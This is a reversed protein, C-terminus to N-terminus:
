YYPSEDIKQCNIGIFLMITHSFFFIIYSFLFFFIFFDEADNKGLGNTSIRSDM